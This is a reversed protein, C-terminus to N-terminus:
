LALLAPMFALAVRFFFTPLIVHISLHSSCPNSQSRWLRRTGNVNFGNLGLTPSSRPVRHANMALRAFLIAPKHKASLLSLDHSNGILHIVRQLHQVVHARCSAHIRANLDGHLPIFLALRVAGLAVRHIDARFSTQGYHRLSERHPLLQFQQIRHISSHRLGRQDPSSVFSSGSPLQTQFQM